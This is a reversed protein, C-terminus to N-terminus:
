GALASVQEKLRGMRKDRDDAFRKVGAFVSEQDLHAEAIVDSESGGSLWRDHFDSTLSYEHTLPGPDQLPWMRQTGTTVVMMDLKAEAPLVADRYAEPQRAFLTLKEPM